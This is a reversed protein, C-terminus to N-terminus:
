SDSNLVEHFEAEFRLEYEGIIPTLGASREEDCQQALGRLHQYLDLDLRDNELAAELATRSTPGGGQAMCASWTAEITATRPDAEVAARMSALEPGLVTRTLYVGPLSRYADGQCGGGYSALLATKRESVPLDEFPELLLPVSAESLGDPVGLWAEYYARRDSEGLSEAYRINPDTQYQDLLERVAGPDTASVSVSTPRVVYPFGASAMCVGIAKQRLIDEAEYRAEDQQVTYGFGPYKALPPLPSSSARTATLAIGVVALSGVVLM